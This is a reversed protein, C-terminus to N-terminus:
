QRAEARRASRKGTGHRVRRAFSPAPKPKPIPIPILKVGGYDVNVPVGTTPVADM